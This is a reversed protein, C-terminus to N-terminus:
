GTTGRVTVPIMGATGTFVNTEPIPEGEVEYQQGRVTMTDAAHVVTGAPVYVVMNTTVRLSSGDRPEVSSQGQVSCGHVTTEAGGSVITVTEGFLGIM